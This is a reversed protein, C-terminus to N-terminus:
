PGAGSGPVTGPAAHPAGAGVAEAYDALRALAAQANRQAGESQPQTVSAGVALLADHDLRVMVSYSAESVGDATLAGAAMGHVLIYDDALSRSTVPEPSTVPGAACAAALLPLTIALVQRSRLAQKGESPREM